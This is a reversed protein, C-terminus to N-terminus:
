INDIYGRPIKPQTSFVEIFATQEDKWGDEDDMLKKILHNEAPQMQSPSMKGRASLKETATPPQSGSENLDGRISRWSAALLLWM